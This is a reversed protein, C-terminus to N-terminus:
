HVFILWAHVNDFSWLILAAELRKELEATVEVVKVVLCKHERLGGEYGHCGVLVLKYTNSHLFLLMWSRLNLNGIRYIVFNFISEFGNALPKRSEDRRESKSFSLISCSILSLLLLGEFGIPALRDAM